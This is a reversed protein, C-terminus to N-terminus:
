RILRQREELANRFQPTDEITKGGALMQSNMAKIKEELLRKQEQAANFDRSRAELARIASNKEEEAQKRQAELKLVDM